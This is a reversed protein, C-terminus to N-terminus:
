ARNTQGAAHITVSNIHTVLLQIPPNFANNAIKKNSNNKDLVVNYNTSDTTGRNFIGLAEFLGTGASLVMAFVASGLIAISSFIKGKTNM